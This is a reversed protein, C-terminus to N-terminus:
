RRMRGALFRCGALIGAVLGLILIVTLWTLPAPQPAQTLTTTVTETTTYTERTTVTETHIKTETEKLIMTTTTTETITETVTKTTATSPGFGELQALKGESPNFSSLIRHQDEASPALLDLIYPLVGNLIALSYNEPVYVQWEGGGVVFPRIKNVGYGDHSTVAVIYVWKDLNGTDYLLEKPVEAVITNSAQDAYVNFGGTGQVVPAEKDYYYIASREGVPLPDSGWGPALLVAIHWEYGPAIAANLGITTNNGGSSITTHIYIHIQQLSWGNPGSWPNGGLDRFSVIFVVKDGQDVVTFKTMDFVGPKFVANGPYKYGGPGDDDGEPDSMSFVVRGTPMARPIQVQYALGLRTSYETIVGNKYLVAALYTIGGEPLGLQTYDVALEGTTLEGESKVKISGSWTTTWGNSTAASIKVTGGAVDILLERVLYIGLDVQSGRPYVQYGPNFPSLSTTPSTFYLGIELGQTNTTTLNFAIYLKSSGLLLMVSDLTLGVPIKLGNGASIESLWEEEIVGDVIPTYKSPKPVNTNLVGIPTGDPYATVNLYSPPTLGALEYARRLYSKFLPDFTQPSGGGDGGYWWWWDSAEARLLNLAIDYHEAYLQKFSGVGLKGLIDSRAKVLWMWAVNEQRDGIWMALEGGAWSGEPIYANVTKRPLTSYSDGYSDPPINSIDRGALDLYTYPKLTLQQAISSYKDIFESPTTTALVGQSQLETLRKYLENLFLDGFEEYNEWPNEGDLAIVVLRPGSAAAKFSLIRNILDDVAAKYNMGSYQFSILNSLETNRFVVYIRGEPYDAYWPVGLINISGADVGTKALISQDTITWMLGARKFAQLVGDNVAQEAPWVGRPTVGFYKQFLRLSESVHVELDESFGLDVLVPAMPHSYPVPILEVQNRSALERYAPIIESMISRHVLLVQRLDEVTYGPKASNYARQMLDYIGPYKERAVQPDIWLLNFLVALDVVSQNGGTTFTNVVCAELEASSRATQSCQTWASQALTQLESFRPSRSVIRNWNIDFFGGPIQLMKFIDSRSATGNVIKWSIIERADMLGNEVIRTLQELLSGSFTFTAKVDPYKSLIYAMKYYNGVSHMRVWPLILSSGDVSYYWPQHFHWVISVYIGSDSASVVSNLLLLPQALLLAVLLPALLKRM